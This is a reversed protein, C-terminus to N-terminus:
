TLTRIWTIEEEVYNNIEAFFQRSADEEKIYHNKIEELTERSYASERSCIKQAMLGRKKRARVSMISPPYMPHWLLFLKVFRCFFYNLKNKLSYRSLDTFTFM